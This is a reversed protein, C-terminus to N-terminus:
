RHIASPTIQPGPLNGHLANVSALAANVEELNACNGFNVTLIRKGNAGMVSLEQLGSTEVGQEGGGGKGQGLLTISGQPHPYGPLFFQLVTTRASQEGDVQRLKHDAFDVARIEYTNVVASDLVLQASQTLPKGLTDPPTHITLNLGTIIRPDRIAIATTPKTFCNEDLTRTRNTVEILQGSSDAHLINYGPDFVTASAGSTLSAPPSSRHSLSLGIAGGFIMGIVASDLWASGTVSFNRAAPAAPTAVPPLPEEKKASPRRRQYTTLAAQRAETFAEKVRTSTTGLKDGMEAFLKKWNIRTVTQLQPDSQPEQSM